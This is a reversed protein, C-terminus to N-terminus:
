EGEGYAEVAQALLAAAEQEQGRKLARAM